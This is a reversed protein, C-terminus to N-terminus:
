SPAVAPDVLEVERRQPPEDVMTVSRSAFDPQNKVNLKNIAKYLAFMIAASVVVAAWGAVPSMVRTAVIWIAVVILNATALPLLSKWGLSMLQDYRLRPLTARVWIYTTVVAIAKVVVYVPALISSGNLTDLFNWVDGFSKYESAM